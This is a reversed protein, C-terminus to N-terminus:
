DKCNNKYSLLKEFKELRKRSNKLKSNAMRALEALYDETVLLLGKDAVPADIREPLKIEIIIRKGLAIIGSRRFGSDNAIKLIKEATVLDRCSIHIIPPEMRFWLVQEPPEVLQKRLEKISVPEHSEYIWGAEKKSPGEMFLMIRGACSSTTYLDPHSNILEVVPLIQSDIEGKLSKDHRLKNLTNKKDLDFM